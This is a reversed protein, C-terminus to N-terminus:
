THHEDDPQTAVAQVTADIPQRVAARTMHRRDDRKSVRFCVAIMAVSIILIIILEKVYLLDNSWVPSDMSMAEKKHCQGAVRSLINGL